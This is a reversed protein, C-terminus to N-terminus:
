KDDRKKRSRMGSPPLTPRREGIHELAKVNRRLALPNEPQEEPQEFRRDDFRRAPREDDNYSRRNRFDSRRDDDFRRPPREDDFRDRKRFDGRKDDDFRRPPREDDFRKKRSFEGRRDDDFRRDPREDNFRNNKRSDSRRDDNFRKKKRFDGRKDDDDFRKKKHFDGRGNDDKHKVRYDNSEDDEDDFRRRSERRSDKDHRYDKDKLKGGSALFEKKNGTFIVYERLECELSGNLLAIKQSPALGIEHFYEERYGIIWAHYGTFVNKLVSGINAYLADMDEVSIREGYPPNTVFVGAPQPAEEWQSLAKNQLQIYQSVGASKINETAIAIAKPSIDSGIIKCTVEREGSDDNYLREFLEADFDPWNEFAFSKRYIGPWINAAILAAEILFTGSGCMPDVFPIDGKWGSMLIIGAALVENIPAETQAVRYGRKHLSEGSSDLSLTVMEGSIHVNIMIDADKLRVGPRKDAGYQDRFWDVIGDKVRYTVFRSHTFEESYVVTDICFTKDVSLITSWDFEKVKEYLTDPNNATFKYFPKLIRLATRCGLNAKYLMELGGEFSVMRHGPSVNEAGLDRLEDALVAELGKMTKAVMEFKEEM